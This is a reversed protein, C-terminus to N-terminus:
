STGEPSKQLKNNKAGKKILKRAKKGIIKTETNGKGNYNKDEKSM